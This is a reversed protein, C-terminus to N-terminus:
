QSDTWALLLSVPVHKKSPDERTGRSPACRIHCGRRSRRITTPRRLRTIRPRGPDRRDQLARAISSLHFGQFAVAITSRSTRAVASTVPMTTAFQVPPLLFVASGGLSGGRAGGVAGWGGGM